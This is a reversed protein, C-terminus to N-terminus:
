ARIAETGQAITPSVTGLLVADTSYLSVVAEADNASFVAAWREIVANAEEAPGGFAASPLSLLLAVLAACIVMM